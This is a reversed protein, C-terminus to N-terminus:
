RMKFTLLICTLTVVLMNVTYEREELKQIISTFKADFSAFQDKTMAVTAICGQLTEAFM